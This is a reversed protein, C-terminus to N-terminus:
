EDKDDDDDNDNQKAEKTDEKPMKTLKRCEACLFRIENGHEENEREREPQSFLHSVFKNRVFFLAFFGM